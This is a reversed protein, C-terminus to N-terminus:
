ICIYTGICSEHPFIYMICIYTTKRNRVVKRKCAEATAPKEHSKRNANM